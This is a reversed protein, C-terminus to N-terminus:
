LIFSKWKEKVRFTIFKNLLFQFFFDPMSQRFNDGTNQDADNDCDHDTMKKRLAFFPCGRSDTKSVQEYFLDTM